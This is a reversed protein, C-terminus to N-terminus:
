EHHNEHNRFEGVLQECISGGLIGACARGGMRKPLVQRLGKQLPVLQLDASLEFEILTHVVM